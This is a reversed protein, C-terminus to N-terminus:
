REFIKDHRQTKAQCPGRWSRNKLTRELLGIGQQDTMFLNKPGVVANSQVAYLCYDHDCLPRRRQGPGRPQGHGKVSKDFCACLQQARCRGRVPDHHQVGGTPQPMRRQVYLVSHQDGPVRRSNAQLPTLVHDRPVPHSETLRSNICRCTRRIAGIGLDHNLYIRGAGKGLEHDPAVGVNRVHNLGVASAALVTQDICHEFLIPPFVMSVSFEGPYTNMDVAGLAEPTLGFAGDDFCALM